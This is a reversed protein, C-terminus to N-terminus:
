NYDLPVSFLGAFVCKCNFQISIEVSISSFISNTKYFRQEVHKMNILQLAVCRAVCLVLEQMSGCVIVSM